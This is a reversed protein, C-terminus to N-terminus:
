CGRRPADRVSASRRDVGVVRSLERSAARWDSSGQADTRRHRLLVLVAASSRPRAALDIQAFDAGRAKSRAPDAAGAAQRAARRRGARGRSRLLAEAAGVRRVINWPTRGCPNRTPMASRRGRDECAARSRGRVRERWPSGAARRDSSARRGHATPGELPARREAGTEVRHRCCILREVARPRTSPGDLPVAEVTRCLGEGEVHVEPARRAMTMSGSAQPANLSSGARPRRAAPRAASPGVIPRTWCNSLLKPSGRYGRHLDGMREAVGEWSSARRAAVVPTSPLVQRLIWRSPIGHSPDALIRAPCGPLLRRRGARGSGPLAGLIVRGRDVSEAYSKSLSRTRAPDRRRRIDHGLAPPLDPEGEVPYSRSSSPSTAPGADPSRCTARNLSNPDFSRSRPHFLVCRSRPRNKLGPPSDEGAAPAPIAVPERQRGTLPLIEGLGELHLRPAELTPRSRRAKAM